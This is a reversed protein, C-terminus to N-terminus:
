KVLATLFRGYNNKGYKQAERIMDEGSIWGLEYAVEGPSGIQLAKRAEITRVFNGTDLLSAHTGTDRSAYGRGM